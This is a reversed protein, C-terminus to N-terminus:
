PQGWFARVIEAIGSLVAVVIFLSGLFVWFSSFIFELVQM